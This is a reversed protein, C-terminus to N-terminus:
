AVKRVSIRSHTALAQSQLVIMSLYCHITVKRIRQVTVHNLARHEKLRSFVREVAVRRNYLLKWAQTELPRHKKDNKYAKIIPQARYQRHIHRRLKATSYGADALVSRPHFKSYTVRAESLVRTAGHSDHINATTVNLALPLEYETDVIVHAKYGLWYKKLNGVSSKVSWTADLDTFPRKAKNSWAKVDTSDIAVTQGFNPLTAYLTRVMRRMVDKVLHAYKRSALKTLFRSFTPQSPFDAPTEIGCARAVFPNDQIYRILASVSPLGLVYRVLYCRWLIKPDYGPRGRRKPGRLAALLEADPLAQFIAKLEGVILPVQKEANYIRLYGYAM